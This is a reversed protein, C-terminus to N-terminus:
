SIDILMVSMEGCKGVTVIHEIVNYIGSLRDVFKLKVPYTQQQLTVVNVYDPRAAVM